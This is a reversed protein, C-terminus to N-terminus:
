ITKKKGAKKQSMTWMITRRANRHTETHSHTHSNRRTHTHTHMVNLIGNCKSLLCQNWKDIVDLIYRQFTIGTCHLLKKEVKRKNVESFKSHIRTSLSCSNLNSSVIRRFEWRAIQYQIKNNGFIQSIRSMSPNSTCHSYAYTSTLSFFICDGHHTDGQTSQCNTNDPTM